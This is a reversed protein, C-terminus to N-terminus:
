WGQRVLAGAARLVVAGSLERNFANHKDPNNNTITAIAGDITLELREGM